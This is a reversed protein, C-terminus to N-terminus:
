VFIVCWIRFNALAFPSRFVRNARYEGLIRVGQQYLPLALNNPIQGGVCVIVGLAREIEYVDLVRELTLEEFYLTDSEDYDTSVTEPNYNIVIARDGMARLQRVASVACWDFEVSSGISYAGCGLVIVGGTTPVHGTSSVSVSQASNNRHVLPSTTHGPQTPVYYQYSSINSNGRPRNGGHTGSTQGHGSPSQGHDLVIDHESGHYTLYLYNTQAPFEAALTDIQKCYPLVNMQQRRRRVIMETTNTYRAIQRDSFGAQKLTLLHEGTLRDLGSSYYRVMVQKLDSIRKLRSLFWADIRTLSVVEQVSYGHELAFQIAFLRKDTPVRLLDDLQARNVAQGGNISNVINSYQFPLSGELGELLGGSVMRVAKQIAEEFTRGIAMVEGVSSMSSGLVTSVKSFKSLDSVVM